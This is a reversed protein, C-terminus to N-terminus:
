QIYPSVRSRSWLLVPSCSHSGQQGSCYRNTEVLTCFLSFAWVQYDGIDLEDLLETLVKLVEFDPVM